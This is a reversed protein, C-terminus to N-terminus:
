LYNLSGDMWIYKTKTFLARFLNTELHKFGIKQFLIVTINIFSVCAGTVRDVYIHQLHCFYHRDAKALQRFNYEELNDTAAKLQLAYM